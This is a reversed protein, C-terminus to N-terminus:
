GQLRRGSGRWRRELFVVTTLLLLGITIGCYIRNIHDIGKVVFPLIEAPEPHNNLLDLLMKNGISMIVGVAALPLLAALLLQSLPARKWVLWIFVFVSAIAALHMLLGLPGSHILIQLYSPTPVEDFM